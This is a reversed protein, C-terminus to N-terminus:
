NKRKIWLDYDPQGKKIQKPNGMIFGFTRGYAWQEASKVQPRVSKPSTSFAKYGRNYVKQLIAKKFKTIKAIETIGYGKKSDLKYKKIFDDRFTMNNYLINYYSIKLIKNRKKIKLINNQKM